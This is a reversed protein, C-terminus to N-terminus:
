VKSKTLAAVKAQYVNVYEDFDEGSIEDGDCTFTFPIKTDITFKLGGMSWRAKIEDDSIPHYFEVNVGPTLLLGVFQNRYHRQQVLQRKYYRSHKMHEPMNEVEWQTLGENLEEATIFDFYGAM